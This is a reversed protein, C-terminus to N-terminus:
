VAVPSLKDIAKELGKKGALYAPHVGPIPILNTAITGIPDEAVLRAGARAINQVKGTPLKNVAKDAVNMIPNTVKKGWWDSVGKQIGALEQPARKRMFLRPTGPVDTAGLRVLRELLATKTLENAFAVWVDPNM